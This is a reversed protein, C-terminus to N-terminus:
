MSMQAWPALHPVNSGRVGDYGPAQVMPPLLGWPSDEKACGGWPSWPWPGLKSITGTKGRSDKLSYRAGASKQPFCCIPGAFRISRFVSASHFLLRFEIESSRRIIIGQLAIFTALM